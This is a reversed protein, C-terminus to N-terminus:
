CLSGRAAAGGRPHRAEAGLLLAGDDVKRRGLKWQEVVRLAYQEMEEPQHDATRMKM